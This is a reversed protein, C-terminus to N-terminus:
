SASMAVDGSTDSTSPGARTPLVARVRFGGDRRPGAELEGGHVAVRERMGLLGFGRDARADPRHAGARGDDTIEIELTEALYRVRVDATRAGAHRVVNTLAEQAVRYASLAVGDPVPRVEGYVGLEVELGAARATGVLEPIDGLGPSSPYRGAPEDAARVAGDPEARLVGLLGRLEGIAVRATQEVSRLAERAADGDSDLVRRAAGAQVGMVSVHHAVVDHLDRAIRVREAVVAGRTNQDQSHRLEEAQRELEAQRRASLWAANGFVYASLFFLVNFGIEYIVAAVFPDLPGAAGEFSHSPELLARVLSVGLWVFMAAIVGVRAWRAVKRNREWAGVTYIALFLAISPVLNDGVQRMQGAIFLAGVAILVALPFRTRVVLPATMAVTWAFQEPLSPAAGFTFMGMSNVLVTVLASGGLVALGTWVDRRRQAAGPGPRQWRAWGADEDLRTGM